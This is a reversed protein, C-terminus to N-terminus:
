TREGHDDEAAKERVIEVGCLLPPKGSRTFFRVELERPIAIKRYERMVTRRAGKTEAAIDVPAPDKKGQVSLTFIRGGPKVEPDPESFYLRVTYRAGRPESKRKKERRKVTKLKFESLGEVGSAGIWARELDDDRLRSSHHRFYNVSAGRVEVPVKPSPGGVIPWELWLTGDAARRDGPAGLNVGVRRIRRGDYTFDNYTWVEVEPMHVLALSTQNQYSCSCTRTYDPANLVGDAAILNSTCGSKFGGFNGTGSELLLDYFGAAASRFTLLYESAIPYNCGHTRTYRWPRKVGTLPDAALVPKGTLLDYRTNGAIIWRSHLIPPTTYSIARDWVVEGTDARLVAMRKGDEGRIMDRSPRRAELIVGHAASFSLWTGFVDKDKRWKLTGGALDFASLRYGEPKKRGRRALHGEVGPHLRDICFLTDRSATIGNHLFGWRATTEWLIRGTRRDMVVLKRSAALDYFASLRKTIWSKKVPGPGPPKPFDCFGAGGILFDGSVGIYGWEPDNKAEPDEPVPFRNLTKGTAADLVRCYSGEAFYVRDLTAVFNTGRANAGPMHRQNYATSLPDNKHTEDYYVGFLSEKGVKTKWLLRGTYVDRASLCDLGEIFLRGGVVQEPPGHGHRPLVDENSVGGFWLIGLPLKVLSDDSKITNAVSGYQHTWSAAGPLPGERKLLVFSPAEVIRSNALAAAEKRLREVKKGDLEPFFIAGGYPRVSAYLRKLLDPRSLIEKEKGPRVVTLSFLYPPLLLSGIEGALLAIRRGHLERVDFRRRLESLGREPSVVGIVHLDSLLALAQVFSGDGVGYVLAYGERVSSASLCARAEGSGPGEPAPPVPDEVRRRAVSGPEAEGFAMIRGDATVAFLRGDAALLREVRGGAKVREVIKGASGDETEEIVTIVDAGAAYLRRGAKILDGSADAKVKWVTKGPSDALRKEVTPGSFYFADGDLVPQTGGGSKREGKELSYLAFKRKREHGFFFKGRAFVSSGGSKPYRALHFYKQKGTRRDLCAPVSRGGPVLLYEETAALAGQPAVGAFAPSLHPQNRYVSGTEDNVWEIRGNEIALSYIFTGMFPWIGAAFYVRGKYVVPGGRVPWMSILRKNGLVKRDSPGGRFKWILNGTEAELCYLYGDDSGVFVKGAAAAPPLRVPGDTYFRWRERGTETDLAVVKDTDNFGVVLTKGTVIPEFVRDYPMLDRNLPDDWVPERPSCAVEWELRLSAPLREPSAASRGASYRWM